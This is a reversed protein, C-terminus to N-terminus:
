RHFTKLRPNEIPEKKQPSTRTKTVPKESLTSTAPSETSSNIKKKSNKRSGDLKKSYKKTKIYKRKSTRTM